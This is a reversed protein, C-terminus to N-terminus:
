LGGARRRTRRSGNPTSVRTDHSVKLTHSRLERYLCNVTRDKVPAYNESPPRAQYRLSIRNPIGLLTTLERLQRNITRDFHMLYIPKCTSHILQLLAENFEIWHGIMMERDNKCNIFGQDIYSAVVRAPDRVLGVWVDVHQEWLPQLLTTRPDKVLWHEAGANRRGEELEEIVLCADDFYASPIDIPEIRGYPLITGDAGRQLQLVADNVRRVEHNEFAWNVEGLYCGCQQLAEAVYATGSRGLGVMSIGSM